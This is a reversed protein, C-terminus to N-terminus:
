FLVKKKKEMKEKEKKIYRSHFWGLVLVDLLVIRSLALLDFLTHMSCVARFSICYHDINLGMGGASLTTTKTEIRRLRDQGEM